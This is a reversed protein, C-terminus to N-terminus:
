PNEYEKMYSNFSLIIRHNLKAAVMHTDHFTEFYWLNDM